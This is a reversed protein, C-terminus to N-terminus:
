LLNIGFLKVGLKGVPLRLHLGNTFIFYLLLTVAIGYILSVWVPVKKGKGFMVSLCTIFAITPILYGLGWLLLVYLLIVAIILLFRKVESADKLFPKITKDQKKLILLLGSIILIGASIFPFAKPGVDNQMPGTPLNWTAIFILIGLIVSFLGVGRDRSM